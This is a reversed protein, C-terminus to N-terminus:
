PTRSRCAAPSILGDMTSTAVQTAATGPPTAGPLDLLLDLHHVLTPGSSAM